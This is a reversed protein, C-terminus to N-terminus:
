FTFDSLIFSNNLRNVEANIGMGINFFEPTFFQTYRTTIFDSDKIPAVIGVEDILGNWSEASHGITLNVAAMDGTISPITGTFTLVRQIGNIYMKLKAPNDVGDGDYVIFIHYWTDNEFGVATVRGYTSSNGIFLVLQDSWWYFSILNSDSVYRRLLRKVGTYSSSNVLMEIGFTTASNL